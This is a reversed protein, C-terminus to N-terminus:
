ANNNPANRKENFTAVLRSFTLLFLLALVANWFFKDCESAFNKAADVPSRVAAVTRTAVIKEQFTPRPANSPEIIPANENLALRETEPTANSPEVPIEAAPLTANETQAAFQSQLEPPAFAASYDCLTKLIRGSYTAYVDSGDTGWLVGVIEGSRNCIPGGSDGQRAAGDIKLTEYADNRSTKVYGKVTGFATKLTENPGFGARWVVEGQKPWSPSVTLTPVDQAAGNELRLLAVDYEESALVLTAPFDRGDVSEVTISGRGDRFIHAATLVYKAGTADSVFAGSGKEVVDRKMTGVATGTAHLTERYANYVRAVSQIAVNENEPEPRLAARRNEPFSPAVPCTGSPCADFDFPNPPAFTETFSFLPEAGTEQPTLDTTENLNLTPTEGLRTEALRALSASPAFAASLAVALALQNPSNKKM